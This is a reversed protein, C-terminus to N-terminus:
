DNGSRALMKVIYKAVQRKGMNKGDVLVYGCGDISKVFTLLQDRWSDWHVNAMDCVATRSRVYRPDKSFLWQMARKKDMKHEGLVDMVQRGLVAQWLAREGTPRRILKQHDRSQKFIM